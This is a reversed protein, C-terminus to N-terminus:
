ITLAISDETQVVNVTRGTARSVTALLEFQVHAPAVPADSAQGELRAWLDDQPAIRNAAAHIHWQASDHKISVNGGMPLATELCLYGLYAMQLESRSFNGDAQWHPIMRSGAALKELTSKAESHRVMQESGASGFAIRFFQIKATASDCSQQILEMEPTDSHLGPSLSILELGNNIAGIPSILDHCIRSGILAALAADNQPM